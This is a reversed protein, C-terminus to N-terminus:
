TKWAYIYRRLGSDTVVKFGQVELFAILTPAEPIGGPLEHYSAIALRVNNNRLTGVAGALVKLEAGEADIKIFDVKGLREEKVITDITRCPLSMSKGQKEVTSHCTTAKSIYLAEHGDRDSVVWPLVIVPLGVTNDYLWGRNSESPEVAVVVGKEGVTCAARVTWMGTYAGVDIVTDGLRPTLVSDYVSDYFVEFFSGTGDPPSKIWRGRYRYQVYGNYSKISSADYGHLIFMYARLLTTNRSVMNLSRCGLSQRIKSPLIRRVIRDLRM